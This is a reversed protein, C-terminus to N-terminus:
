RALTVCPTSAAPWCFLPLVIFFQLVNGGLIVAVYRGLSEAAVGASVQASLQAAFALIGLPLTWILGKILMFLLDQLGLLLNLVTTRREGQRMKALAIGVAAAILLLSLVNAELFPQVLNNPVVSLIHDYYTEGGLNKPISTQGGAVMAAPLNGPHILLFLVLGVAAAAVTTLLTYTLAHRFIRGTDKQDGISALTTIVALVITPVALFQFLRTYVTAIFTMLANLWGLGLLGLAGGVILAGIWLTLQRRNNAISNNVEQNNDM